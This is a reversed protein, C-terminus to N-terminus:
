EDLPAPKFKSAAEVANFTDDEWTPIKQSILFQKLGEAAELDTRDTDRSDPDSGENCRRYKEELEQLASVLSACLVHARDPGQSNSEVLDYLKNEMRITIRMAPQQYSMEAHFAGSAISSDSRIRFLADMPYFRRWNSCALMAGKSFSIATSEDPKHFDDVGTAKEWLVHKTKHNLIGAVVFVEYRDQLVPYEIEQRATFDEGKHTTVSVSATKRFATKGISVTCYFSAEKREILSAVLTNRKLTHEVELTTKNKRRFVTSYAKPDDYDLTDEHLVPHPFLTSM